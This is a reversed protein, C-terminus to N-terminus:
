KKCSFEYVRYISYPKLFKGKFRFKGESLDFQSTTCSTSSSSVAWSCRKKEVEEEERSTFKLLTEEFIKQKDKQFINPMSFSNKAHEITISPPLSRDRHRTNKSSKDKKLIYNGRQYGENNGIQYNTCLSNDSLLRSIKKPRLLPLKSLNRGGVSHSAASNNATPQLVPLLEEKELSSGDNGSSDCYERISNSANQPLRDFSAM